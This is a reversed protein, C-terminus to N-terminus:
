KVEATQKSVLCGKAGAAAPFPCTRASPRRAQGPPCPGQSPSPLSPAAIFTSGSGIGIVVRKRFKTRNADVVVVEFGGGHVVVGAGSVLGALVLLTRCLLLLDLAVVDVVDRLAVLVLSVLVLGLLVGVRGGLGM